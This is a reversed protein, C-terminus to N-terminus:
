FKPLSTMSQIHYINILHLYSKYYNSEVEHKNKRSNSVYQGFFQMYKETDFDKKRFAGMPKSFIDIYKLM